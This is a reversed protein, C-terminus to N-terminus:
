HFCPEEVIELRMGSISPHNKLIGIRKSSAKGAIVIKQAGRIFHRGPLKSSHLRGLPMAM